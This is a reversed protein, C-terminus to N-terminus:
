SQSAPEIYFAWSSKTQWNTGAKVTDGAGFKSFYLKTSSASMDWLFTKETNKFKNCSTNVDYVQVDFTYEPNTDGWIKVKTAPLQGLYPGAFDTYNYQEKTKANVSGVTGNNNYFSAHIGYDRSVPFMCTYSLNFKCDKIFKYDVVLEIKNGAISYTRVVDCWATESKNFLIQTKEVIKINSVEVPEGVKLTLEKNTTGDYFKLEKLAENKHNGGCFEILHDDDGVRYVYEWDTGSGALAKGDYTLTGINWTGWEKKDFTLSLKKGNYKTEMVYMSESSKKFIMPYTSVSQSYKDMYINYNGLIQKKLLFYDVTDLKEAGTIYAARQYVSELPLNGLYFKKFILYDVSSLTGDGDLDGDIVISKKDTVTNSVVKEITDGTAILGSTKVEGKSNRIVYGNGLFQSIAYDYYTDPQIGYIYEGDIRIGTETKVNIKNNDIVPETIDATPDSDGTDQYVEGPASDTGAEGSNFVEFESAFIFMGQDKTIVAKVFRATVTTSLEVAYDYLAGGASTTGNETAVAMGVSTFNRNDTSIFYEVSKPKFISAGTIESFQMTIKKIGPYKKGLDVKAFYESLNYFGHWETGYGTTGKVGDTLEKGDILQYDNPWARDTYPETATYAKGAAINSDEAASVSVVSTLMFVTAIALLLALGKKM